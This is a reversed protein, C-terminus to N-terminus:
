SIYIHYHFLRFGSLEKIKQWQRIPYVGNKFIPPNLHLSLETNVVVIEERFFSFYKIKKILSNPVGLLM